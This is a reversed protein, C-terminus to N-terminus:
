VGADRKSRRSSIEVHPTQPEHSQSRCRAAPRRRRQIAAQATTRFYYQSTSALMVAPFVFRSGRVPSCVGTFLAARFFQPPVPQPELPTHIPTHTHTHRPLHSCSQSSLVDHESLLAGVRIKFCPHTSPPSLPPPSPTWFVLDETQEVRRSSTHQQRPNWNKSWM